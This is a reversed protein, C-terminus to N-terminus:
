RLDVADQTSRVIVIPWGQAILKAQRKTLRGKGAKIEIMRMAGARIGLCDVFGPYSSTDLITWGLQRLTDRIEGHNQDVRKARM